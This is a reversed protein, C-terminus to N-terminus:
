FTTTNFSIYHVLNQLLLRSVSIRHGENSIDARPIAM